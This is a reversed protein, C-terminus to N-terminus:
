FFEWFITGPRLSICLGLEGPPVVDEDNDPIMGMMTGILREVHPYKLPEGVERDGM